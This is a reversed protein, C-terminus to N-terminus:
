STAFHKRERAAGIIAQAARSIGWLGRQLRAIGNRPM